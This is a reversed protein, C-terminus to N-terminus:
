KIILKKTILQSGCYIGHLYIGPPLGANLITESRGREAEYKMGKAAAILSLFILLLSCLFVRLESKM